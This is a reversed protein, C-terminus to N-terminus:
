SRDKGQTMLVDGVDIKASFASLYQIQTQQSGAIFAFLIMGASIVAIGIISIIAVRRKTTNESKLITETIVRLREVDNIPPDIMM